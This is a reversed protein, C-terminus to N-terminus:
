ASPWMGSATNRSLLQIRLGFAGGVNRGVGCSNSANIDRRPIELVVRTIAYSSRPPM